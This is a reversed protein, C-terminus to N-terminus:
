ASPRGDLQEAIEDPRESRVAMVEYTAHREVVELSALYPEAHGPAGFFRRADARIRDYEAASLRIIAMCRPDACECLFPIAEAVDYERASGYIRENAERFKADNKPVREDSAGMGSPKGVVATTFRVTSPPSRGGGRTPAIM